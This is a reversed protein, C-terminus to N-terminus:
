EGDTLTEDNSSVGESDYKSLLTRDLVGYVRYIAPAVLLNVGLEVLFNIGACGIVLFYIVSQGDAIFPSNKLTGSMMLAFIIFLATNVIPATASALFTGLYRKKNALVNYVVASLAGAMTTKFICIFATFGPHQSFLYNTFPDMGSIGAILTILGCVFGLFAGGHIGLILSGLVIPILSLNLSITGLIKIASGWIQLVILLATLIALYVLNHTTFFKKSSGM